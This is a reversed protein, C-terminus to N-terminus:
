KHSEAGKCVAVELMAVVKYCCVIVNVVVAAVEGANTTTHDANNM